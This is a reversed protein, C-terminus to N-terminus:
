IHGGLYKVEIVQVDESSSGVMLQFEGSELLNNGNPDFYILDNKSITFEVTKTQHAEIWIKKFSKLEKVPRAYFSVMDNIYLQITESGSIDSINKVDISVKIKEDDKFTKHSVGLNEYVFTAYSLGYGFPFLAENKEDLYFSTYENNRKERPRGTNLHNYYIPVQGGHRPYSIPLKGSPNVDGSLISAIAEHAQSGLYFADLIGDAKMINSLVFPRGHYLIVVVKKNLSKAFKVFQYQGRPLDLDVKSKAEGSEYENEGLTLIIQDANDIMDLEDENFEPTLSAKVFDIHIGKNKLEDVLKTNLNNDGHGAWSGNTRNTDAYPGLVVYHLKKSLPLVDDNKLLVASEEAFKKAFSLHEKTRIIQKEKEPNAGSFPDEFLGLDEKLKLIRYVAEDIDKEKIQNEELLEALYNTYCASAM